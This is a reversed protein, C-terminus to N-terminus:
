MESQEDIRIKRNFGNVLCTLLWIFMKEIFEFM